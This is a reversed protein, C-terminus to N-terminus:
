CNLQRGRGGGGGAAAAKEAIEAATGAASPLAYAPYQFHARVTAAVAAPPPTTTSATAGRRARQVVVVALPQGAAACRAGGDEVASVEGGGRCPRWRHDAALSRQLQPLLLRRECMAPCGPTPQCSAELKCQAVPYTSRSRVSRHAHFQAGPLALAPRGAIKAQSSSRHLPRHMGQKPLAMRGHPAGPLAVHVTPFEVIWKSRLAEHLPVTGDLELWRCREAAAVGAQVAAGPLAGSLMACLM